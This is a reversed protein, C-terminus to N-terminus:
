MKWEGDGDPSPAEENSLVFWKNKNMIKGIKQYILNNGFKLRWIPLQFTDIELIHLDNYNLKIWKM